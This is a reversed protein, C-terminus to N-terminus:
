EECLNNFTCLNSFKRSPKVFLNLSEMTMSKGICVYEDLANTAMNYTFMQIAVICKQITYLNM